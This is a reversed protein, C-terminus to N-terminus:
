RRRISMESSEYIDVGPIQRIGAKIAKDIKGADVMLYERPVADENPIAWRWKTKMSAVAHENSLTKPADPVYIDMGLTKSLERAHNKADIADQELKAYWAALNLTIMNEFHELKESLIKASDNVVAIFKRSPAILEKRRDEIKKCLDKARGVMELAAGSEEISEIPFSAHSNLLFMVDKSFKEIERLAPLEDSPLIENAHM